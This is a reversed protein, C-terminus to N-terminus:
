AKVGEIGHYREEEYESCEVPQGNGIALFVRKQIQWRKRCVKQNMVCDFCPYKVGAFSRM